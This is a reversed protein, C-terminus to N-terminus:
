PSSPNVAALRRLLQQVVDTQMDRYLMAEESEKSLRLSDNFAIERQASIETPEVLEDGNHDRVRFRIKELLRYEVARGQANLTLVERTRQEALFDFIVAAQSADEVVRTSSGVRIQRALEVGLQSNVPFNLAITAFPLKQEGRLTFGCAGALLSAALLVALAARRGGARPESWSM